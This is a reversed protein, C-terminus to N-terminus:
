QGNRSGLLRAVAEMILDSVTDIDKSGDIIKVRDPDGEAIRHFGDRVRQHFEMAEREFRSEELGGHSMREMARGLGTKIDLDLLVTLDPWVDGCALSNATKIMAMEDGRAWGQYATTSDAFRDCLVVEGKQLAPRIVTDVLEHRAANFLLLETRPALAGTEPDLLISRIKGGVSTGGPERTAVVNWGSDGLRKALREIQVSKGSGEIGEFTIFFGRM